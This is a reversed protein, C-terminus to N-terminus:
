VERAAAIARAEPQEVAMCWGLRRHGEEQLWLEGDSRAVGVSEASSTSSKVLPSYPRSISTEQIHCQVHMQLLLTVFNMIISEKTMREAKICNLHIRISSLFIGLLDFRDM